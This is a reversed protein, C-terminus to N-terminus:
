SRCPRHTVTSGSRRQHCPAPPRPGATASPRVPVPSSRASDGSRLVDRAARRRILEADDPSSCAARGRAEGVKGQSLVRGAYSAALGEPPEVGEPRLIAREEEPALLRDLLQLLPQRCVGEQGHETRGATALRRHHQGSQHRIASPRRLSPTPRDASGARSRSM